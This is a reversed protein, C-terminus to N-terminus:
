FKIKEKKGGEIPFIPEKYCFELLMMLNENPMCMYGNLETCNLVSSRQLWEIENRPCSKTSYVPFQYGHLREQLVCIYRENDQLVCGFPCIKDDSLYPTYM